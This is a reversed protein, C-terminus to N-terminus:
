NHQGLSSDISYRQHAQQRQEPSGLRYGYEAENGRRDGSLAPSWEEWSLAESRPSWTPDPVTSSSSSTAGEDGNGGGGFAAALYDGGGEGVGGEGAGGGGASGSVATAATAEADGGDEEEEYNYGEMWARDADTYYQEWDADDGKYEGEAGAWQEGGYPEGDEQVATAATDAQPTPVFGPSHLLAPSAQLSSDYAQQASAIWDTSGTQPTTREVQSKRRWYVPSRTSPTSVAVVPAPESPTPLTDVTAGAAAAVASSAPADTPAPTPPEADPMLSPAITEAEAVGEIPAAVDTSATATAPETAAVPQEEVDGSGISVGGGEEGAEETVMAFAERHAAERRAKAQERIDSSVAQMDTQFWSVYYQPFM